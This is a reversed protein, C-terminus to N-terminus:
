VIKFGFKIDPLSRNADLGIWAVTNVVYCSRLKADHSLALALAGGGWGLGGWRYRLM